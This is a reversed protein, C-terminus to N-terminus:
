NNINQLYNISIINTMPIETTNPDGDLLLSLYNNSRLILFGYLPSSINNDAVVSIRRYGGYKIINLFISYSSSNFMLTIMFLFFAIIFLVSVLTRHFASKKAIVLVALILLIFMSLFIIWFFENYIFFLLVLVALCFLVFISLSLFNKLSSDKDRLRFIDIYNERISKQYFNKVNYFVEIEDIRIRYLFINIPEFNMTKLVRTALYLPFFLIQALIRFLIEAFYFTVVFLVLNGFYLMLSFSFVAFRLFDIGEFPPRANNLIAYNYVAFENLFGLLGSGAIGSIVVILIRTPISLDRIALFLQSIV